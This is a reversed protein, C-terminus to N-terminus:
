MNGSFLFDIVIVYNLTLPNQSIGLIETLNKEDNYEIETAILKLEDQTMKNSNILEKLYVKTDKIKNPFSRLKASYNLYGDENIYMVDKFNKYPIWPIKIFKRQKDVELSLKDFLDSQFPTTSFNKNLKLALDEVNKLKSELDQNKNKSNDNGM